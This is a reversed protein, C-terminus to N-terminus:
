VPLYLPPSPGVCTLLCNGRGVFRLPLCLDSSLFSDRPNWLPSGAGTYVRSGPPSPLLSLATDTRRGETGRLSLSLRRPSHPRLRPRPPVKVVTSGGTTGSSDVTRGMWSLRSHHFLVTFVSPVPNSTPPFRRLCFFNLVKCYPCTSWGVYNLWLVRTPVSRFPFPSVFSVKLSFFVPLKRGGPSDRSSMPHFAFRVRCFPNPCSTPSLSLVVSLRSELRSQSHRLNLLLRHSNCKYLHTRRDGM